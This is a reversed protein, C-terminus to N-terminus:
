PAYDELVAPPNSNKVKLFFQNDTQGEIGSADFASSRVYYFGNNLSSIDFTTIPKSSRSERQLDIFEPDKAIQIQYEIAGQVPTLEFLAKDQRFADQLSNFTPAALLPVAKAGSELKDINLGNGSNVIVPAQCVKRSHVWVTGDDVSLKTQQTNAFQVVTFHTGRVGVIANPVQIEFTNKSSREKKPVYSEVRGNQLEYRAIKNGRAQNLTISTNSPVVSIAGDGLEFSVFSQEYTRLADGRELLSGISLDIPNSLMLGNRSVMQVKGQMKIVKAPFLSARAVFTRNSLKSKSSKSIVKHNALARKKVAKLISSPEVATNCDIEQAFAMQSNTLFLFVSAGLTLKKTMGWRSVKTSKGSQYFSSKM